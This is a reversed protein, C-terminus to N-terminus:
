NRDLGTANIENNRWKIMQISLTRCKIGELVEVVLGAGKRPRVRKWM